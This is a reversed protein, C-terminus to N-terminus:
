SGAFKRLWASFNFDPRFIRDRKKIPMDKLAELCLQKEVDTGHILTDHCYEWWPLRDIVGATNELDETTKIGAMIDHAHYILKSLTFIVDSEHRRQKQEVERKRGAAEIRRRMDVTVPGPKIGLYRLGQKVTLGHRECVYDLPDFYVGCAWCKLHNDTFVSMSPNHDDHFPCLGIYKNGQPHLKIGDAELLAPLDINKIQDTLTM